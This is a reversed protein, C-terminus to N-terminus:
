RLVVATKVFIYCYCIGQTWAGLCLPTCPFSLYMSWLSAFLWRSCARQDSLSVISCTCVSFHLATCTLSCRVIDTCSFNSTVLANKPDNRPITLLSSKAIRLESVARCLLVVGATSRTPPKLGLIFM